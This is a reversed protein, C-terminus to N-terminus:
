RGLQDQFSADKFKVNMHIKYMGLKERLRVMM